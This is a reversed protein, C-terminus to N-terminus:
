SQRDFFDGAPQAHGVLGSSPDDTLVFVARNVTPAVALIIPALEMGAFSVPLFGVDSQGPLEFDAPFTDTSNAPLKSLGTNLRAPARCFFIVHAAFSFPLM